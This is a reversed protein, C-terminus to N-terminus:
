IKEVKFRLVTKLKEPATKKFNSLYIERHTMLMRKYGNEDCFKQMLAFSEKENDYSGIHMFTCCLGDEVQELKLDKISEIGKNKYAREKATNFISDTVFEPQVIGIKWKLNDKNTLEYGKGDIVDWVGELPPVVYNYFGPIKFDGKDSMSITYSLGYLASIADSFSESTNPNGQGTLVAIKLIPVDVVSPKKTSPRYISKYKKKFDIKEMVLGKRQIIKVM